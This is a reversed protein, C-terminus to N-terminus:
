DLAAATYRAGANWLLFSPMGADAAAQIQAKVKTADYRVGLSFDQLWPVVEADTGAVKDRFDLLSRYTIEYPMANPNAVGYEGPGWHSPYVMPAVIDVCRALAPINQGVAWPRSAAIGFVSVGYGAGLAHVAEASQCVFRAIGAEVSDGEPMGAFRMASLAGEPRRIYDLLVDDFGLRAAEEALARNYAAVSDAYPNTFAYSGYSGGFPQGSSTQVLWDQRDNTWAWRGLIPDRFVVLRGVVRVGMAHLSDLVARADYHNKNAGIRGALPVTSTYGIEGAEDKIDLQITNIAGARVLRLIPERLSRATWGLATVHVGRMPGAALAVARTATNGAADTATLLIRRANADPVAVAFTSDAQEVALRTGDPATATLSDAGSVTGRVTFPGRAGTASVTDVRLRPPTRDLAFRWRPGRNSADVARLTHEGDKLSDLRLEFRGHGRNYALVPREDLLFTANEGKPVVMTAVLTDFAAASLTTGDELGELTVNPGSQCAAVALLLSLASALRHM